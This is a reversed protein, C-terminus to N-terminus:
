GFPGLLSPNVLFALGAVVDNFLSKVEEASFLHVPKWEGRRRGAGTGQNEEMERKIREKEELPARQYARFIKIRASRSQPDEPKSSAHQQQPQKNDGVESPLEAFPSSPSSPVSPNFVSPTSLLPHM